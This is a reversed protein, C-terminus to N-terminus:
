NNVDLIISRPVACVIVDLKKLVKKNKRFGTCIYLLAKKTTQAYGRAEKRAQGAIAVAQQV